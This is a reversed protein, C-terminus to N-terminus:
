PVLGSPGPPSGILSRFIPTDFSNVFGNCNLDAANYTPPVSPQGIQARFLPTDFANTFGNNDLDGDCINGYGDNDSDVQEFNAINICNDQGDYAGDSDTDQLLQWALGYDWSFNAGTKTVRLAYQANAPIVVWLNETNENTSASSTVVANGNGLNILSLDLNRLPNATTDFNNSAPGNVFGVIDLNWALSATLLRPYPQVPLPYTGTTNSSSSGGFSPDYDFGRSSVSGAHGDETSNQEGGAIIWYSNRVNLQGAGYRKDLGNATQNPATGRYLSLNTPNPATNHTVRDAGAMLAAKIVESREANQVTVGARNSTSGLSLGANNHGLDILLAVASAVHPTSISTGDAPAVIDPKTRGATYTADLAVSGLDHLGSSLGVTVVNYASGMLALTSSGGAGNNEGVVQIIEDTEVLWDTRRLVYTDATITSGVWSHNMIRNSSTLPRPGGSGNVTNLLGSGVWDAASYAYITTIAPTMSTITGYFTQGVPTAHGSYLGAPAGSANVITKGTFEGNTIDPMWADQGNVLQTGEVQGVEVGGGDPIAGGLDLQLKTYGVDNRYDATAITSTLALGASLLIALPRPHPSRATMPFPTGNKNSNLM